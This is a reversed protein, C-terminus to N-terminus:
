IIRACMRRPLALAMDVRSIEWLGRELGVAVGLGVVAVLCVVLGVVAVVGVTFGASCRALVIRVLWSRATVQCEM